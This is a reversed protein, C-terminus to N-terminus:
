VKPHGEVLEKGGQSPKCDATDERYRGIQERLQFRESSGQRYRSDLKVEQLWSGPTLCQTEVKAVGRTM